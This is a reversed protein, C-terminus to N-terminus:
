RVDATLMAVVVAVLEDAIAPIGDLGDRLVALGAVDCVASVAAIAQIRTLAPLQPHDARSEDRWQILAGAMAEIWGAWRESLEPGGARMHRLFVRTFEPLTTMAHLFARTAVEIREVPDTVADAAEIVRTVILGSAVDFAQLLCDERTNFHTYFTRKATGARKVIDGIPVAYTEREAALEVFATLIRGRQSDLVVQRDLRHPGRPLVIPAHEPHFPTLEPDSGNRQM